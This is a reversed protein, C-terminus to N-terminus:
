RAAQRPVVLRGRQELSECIRCGAGEWATRTLDISHGPNAGLHRDRAREWRALSSAQEAARLKRLQEAEWHWRSWTRALHALVEFPDLREEGCDRCGVTRLRLDLSTHEHRCSDWRERLVEVPAAENLRTSIAIVNDSDSM